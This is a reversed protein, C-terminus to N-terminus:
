GSSELVSPFGGLEQTYTGSLLRAGMVAETGNRWCGDEQGMPAILESDTDTGNGWNNVDGFKCGTPHAGQSDQM